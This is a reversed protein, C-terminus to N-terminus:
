VQRFPLLCGHSDPNWWRIRAGTTKAARVWPMMNSAHELTPVIIEDGAGFQISLAILNLAHTANMTLVLEDPHARFHAAIQERSRDYHRSATQSSRYSGRHVNARYKLYYEVLAEIVPRPSLSTAASDLYIEQSGLTPFDHRAQEMSSPIGISTQSTATSISM